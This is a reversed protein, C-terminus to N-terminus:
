EATGYLATDALNKRVKEELYAWDRESGPVFFVMYPVRGTCVTGGMTEYQVCTGRSLAVPTGVVNTDVVEVASAGLALWFLLLSLAARALSGLGVVSAARGM